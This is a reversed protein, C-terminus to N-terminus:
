AGCAEVECIARRWAAWPHHWSSVEGVAVKDPAAEFQGEYVKPATVVPGTSSSIKREGSGNFPVDEESGEFAFFNTEKEPSM